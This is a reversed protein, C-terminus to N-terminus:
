PLMHAHSRSGPITTTIDLSCADAAATTTLRQQRVLPYAKQASPGAKPPRPTDKRRIAMDPALARLQASVLQITPGCYCSGNVAHGEESAAEAQFHGTVLRLASLQDLVVGLSM